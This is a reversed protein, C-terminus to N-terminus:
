APSRASLLHKVTFENVLAKTPPEIPLSDSARRPPPRRPKQFIM